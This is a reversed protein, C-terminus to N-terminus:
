EFAFDMICLMPREGSVLELQIEQLVGEQHKPFDVLSQNNSLWGRKGSLTNPAPAPATVDPGGHALCAPAAALCRRHTEPSPRSIVSKLATKWVPAEM